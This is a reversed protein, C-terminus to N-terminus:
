RAELLANSFANYLEPKKRCSIDTEKCPGEIFSERSWVRVKPYQKAESLM